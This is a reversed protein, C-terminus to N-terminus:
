LATASSRYVLDGLVTIILQALAACAIESGILEVFEQYTPYDSVSGM